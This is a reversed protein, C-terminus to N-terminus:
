HHMVLATLNKFHPMGEAMLEISIGKCYSLDLLKLHKLSNMGTEMMFKMSAEDFICHNISISISVSEIRTFLQKLYKDINIDKGDLNFCFTELQSPLMLELFNM